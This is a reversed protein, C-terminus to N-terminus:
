VKFGDVAAQRLQYGNLGIHAIHDNKRSSASISVSYWYPQNVPIWIKFRHGEISPTLRRDTVSAKMRAALELDSAPQGNDDFVEGKVCLELDKGTGRLWHTNSPETAIANLGNGVLLIAMAATARLRNHGSFRIQSTPTAVSTARQKMYNEVRASAIGYYLRDHVEVTPRM